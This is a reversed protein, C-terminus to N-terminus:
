AEEEREFVAARFRDVMCTVHDYEPGLSRKFNTRESIDRMISAEKFNTDVAVLYHKIGYDVSTFHSGQEKLWSTFEPDEDTTVKVGVNVEYYEKFREQKINNIIEKKMEQLEKRSRRHDNNHYSMLDDLLRILDEKIYNSNNLQVKVEVIEDEPFLSAMAKRAITECKETVSGGVQEENMYVNPAMYMPSDQYKSIEETVESEDIRRIIKDCDEVCFFGQLPQISVIQYAEGNGIVSKIRGIHKEEEIEDLSVMGYGFMREVHVEPQRTMYEVYDGERYKNM